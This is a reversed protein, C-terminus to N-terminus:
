DVSEPIHHEIFDYLLSCVDDAGNKATTEDYTYLYVQDTSLIHVNLTYFSLQRCYYVDNTSKNPFHYIKSDAM